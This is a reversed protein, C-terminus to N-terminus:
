YWEYYYLPKKWNWTKFLHDLQQKTEEIQDFYDNDYDQDCFDQSIPILSDAKSRDALIENCSALLESLLEKSVEITECGNQPVGIRSTFWEHIAYARNWHVVSQECDSNSM